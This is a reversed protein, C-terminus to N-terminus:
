QPPQPLEIDVIYLAFEIDMLDRRTGDCLAVSRADEEGSLDLAEDESCRQQLIDHGDGLYTNGVLWASSHQDLLIAETPSGELTCDEVRLGEDLEADWRPLGGTGVVLNGWPRRLGDEPTGAVLISDTIEYESPYETGRFYAAALINGEIVGDDVRTWSGRHASDSYVGFGGGRVPDPATDVLTSEDLDMVGAFNLAAAFLSESVDCRECSLAGATLYLGPGATRRISLGTGVSSEGLARNGSARSGMVESTGGSLYIGIDGNEVIDCGTCTLQFSGEAHVGRGGLGDAGARTGQVEVDELTVSADDLIWVGARESDVVRGAAATLTSDESASLASGGVVGTAVGEWGSRHAQIHFGRLEVWAQDTAMVGSGLNDAVVLDNAVLTADDFLAVGAGEGSADQGSVTVGDLIASSADYLVLGFEHNQDWVGGLAHLAAGGEVTIGAASGEDQAPHTGQIDTWEL